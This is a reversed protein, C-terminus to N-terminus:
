PMTSEDVDRACRVGSSADSSVPFYIFRATARLNAADTVSWAGGRLVRRVNNTSADDAERGDTADYPYPKHQSSTWEWVNGSMDLAGVWSTGIPVSGVDRTQRGSNGLYVGNTEAFTAGWPYTWNDPGRAAYEWEAETPLRGGRKACYDRAEFWTIQDVPRNDGVFARPSATVGGFSAFQAQTVEFKDLWFPEFFCITHMPREDARGFESGMTFCGPPVLVMAVGDIVRETNFWSRNRTILGQGVAATLTPALAENLAAQTSAVVTQTAELSLAAAAADATPVAASTATAVDSPLTPTATPQPESSPGCGALTLLVLVLCLAIRM